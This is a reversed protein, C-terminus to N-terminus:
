NESLDTTNTEVGIEDGNEIEFYYEDVLNEVLSNPLTNYDYLHVTVLLGKRMKLM